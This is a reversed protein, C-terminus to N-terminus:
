RPLSQQWCSDLWSLMTKAAATRDLFLTTLDSHHGDKVIHVRALNERGANVKETFSFANQVDILPDRGGHICLVPINEDGQVFRIPDALQWSQPTALYDQLLELDRCLSLALPGSILLLGAMTAQSLQRQALENRNYAMLAALQAGASQGALLVRDAPLGQEAAAQLGAKLGAYADELQTPFRFAPVLRYGGLVTPYGLRAFFQGIFHFSWPDGSRWGGGHLFYILMDRKPASTAPHFLLAYQQRHKGFSLKEEVIDTRRFVAALVKLALPFLSLKEEIQWRRM